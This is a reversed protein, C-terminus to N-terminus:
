KMPELVFSGSIKITKQIKDAVVSPIEINYDALAIVFETTGTIKGDKVVITGITTLDKTVGHMTLTGFISVPYTGDKTFNVSTINKITGKFTSKPYKDSEVYNENFHEQMLAKPFEFAKMLVAIEIQGTAADIVCVARSNKAEINELSTKSFFSISGSKTFYKTQASVATVALSLICASLYLYRKM